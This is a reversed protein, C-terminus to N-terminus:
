QTNPVNESLLKVFRQNCKERADKGALQGRYWEQLTKQVATLMLRAEDKSLSNVMTSTIAEIDSDKDALQLVIKASIVGAAAQYPGLPEKRARPGFSDSCAKLFEAIDEALQTRRARELDRKHSQRAGFTAALAGIAAAWLPTTVDFFALIAPWVSDM